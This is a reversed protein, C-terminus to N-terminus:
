VEAKNKLKLANQVKSQMENIKEKIRGEQKNLTNKRLDLSEKTSKLDKIVENKGNSKILVSGISKYILTKANTKDLEELAEEVEKLKIEIQQNQQMIMQLQTRLQQLRNIQDQLQQSMDEENM